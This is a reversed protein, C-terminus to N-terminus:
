ESLAASVADEGGVIPLRVTSKSLDLSIEVRTEPPQLMGHGPDTSLLVIGLRSGADFVRDAAQLNFEVHYPRGPPHLAFTESVSKRNQPNMWGRNVIEAEGAADYEVLLATVNAAPEDFSLTLDPIVTGSLRVDESLPETTYVLRNDSEDANAHTEIFIDPDDVLSETVPPGTPSELTLGGQTQGGPAFSLDVHETDPHPWDAEAALSGDEREVTIPPEDMVDNEVDFLWYTYWRNLLDVWADEDVGRSLPDSHGGQHLWMRYPKDHERLQDVLKSANSTEVNFDYLGHCILVGCDVNEVDPLYNREHWWDNYNGTTRDQGSEVLDRAPECLEGNERSMIYDFLGGMDLSSAVHGNARYYDYWNSIAVIPVIAELGDVGTSAVGNALTGNYSIGMMGASGTTWDAEVTQGGERADYADARGNLWDVVTRIGEIETDGGVDPCGTSQETGISAPYAWIFGCQLLEDEFASPGIQPTEGGTFEALDSYDDYVERSRDEPGGDLDRGPKDPEYLEENPSYGWAPQDPGYYPSPQIVVPLQLATNVTSAPRAIEVHVRDPEGTGDTDLSTEVWYDERIVDDDAFVPQARGDEFTPEADISDADAAAPITAGAIAGAAVATQLVRRRTTGRGRTQSEEDGNGDRTASM